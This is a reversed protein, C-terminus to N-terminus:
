PRQRAPLGHKAVIAHIRQRTLDFQRGIESYDMGTAALRVIEDNRTTGKPAKTRPVEKLHRAYIAHFEAIKDPGFVLGAGSLLVVIGAIGLLLALSSRLTPRSGLLPWALLTSWIPMTYVILAAESVSLWQIAITTFGMWAFVNTFSALLLRPLSGRPVHLREGQLRALGLLILAAVLGSTGRSLLPPWERLLVKMAPWNLGWGAATVLLYLMGAYSRSVSKQFM